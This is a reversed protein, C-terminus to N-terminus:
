GPESAPPTSTTTMTTYVGKTTYSAPRVDKLAVRGKKVVFDLTYSHTEGALQFGSVSGFCKKDCSGTSQRASEESDLTFSCLCTRRGVEIKVKNFSDQVGNVLLLSLLLFFIFSLNRTPKM